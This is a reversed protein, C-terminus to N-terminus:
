FFTTTSSIWLELHSTEASYSFMGIIKTTMKKIKPINLNTTLQNTLMASLENEM